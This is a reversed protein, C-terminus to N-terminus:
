KVEFVYIVMTCKEITLKGGLQFKEEDTLRYDIETEKM